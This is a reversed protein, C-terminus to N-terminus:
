KVNLNKTELIENRSKNYLYLLCWSGCTYTISSLVVRKTVVDEALYQTIDGLNFILKDVKNNWTVGLVKPHDEITAQPLAIKSFTQNDQWKECSGENEEGEESSSIMRRLVESNTTWTQMNFGGEKFRKKLKEYFSLGEAISSVSSALDDVYLSRLVEEVFEPDISKFLSIHHHLTGNLLFPSSSM